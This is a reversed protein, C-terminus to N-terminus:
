QPVRPLHRSIFSAVEGVGRVAMGPACITAVQRMQVVTRSSFLDRREVIAGVRTQDRVNLMCISSDHNTYCSPHSAFAYNTLRACSATPFRRM